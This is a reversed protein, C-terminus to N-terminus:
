FIIFSRTQTEIIAVGNLWLDRSFGETSSIEMNQDETINLDERRVLKYSMHADEAMGHDVFVARLEDAASDLTRQCQDLAHLLKHALFRRSVSHGDM